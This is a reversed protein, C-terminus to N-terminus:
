FAQEVTAFAGGRLPMVDFQMKDLQAHDAPATGSSESFYLWTAVGLSVVGVGLAVDAAIYMSKVHDVSEQSCNPSCQDLLENDHHGWTLFAVSTGLSALGVGGIVYPWASTKKGSPATAAQAPAAAAVPAPPPPESSSVASSDTAAPPPPAAAPADGSSTARLVVSLQRNRVGQVVVVKEVHAERGPASFSFEHVGPDLELARGNIPSASPAGDIRLEVDAVPAGADDLAIPVV